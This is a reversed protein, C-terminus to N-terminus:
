LTVATESLANLPLLFSVVTVIPLLTVFIPLSANEPQLFRFFIVTVAPFSFVILIMANLPMLLFAVMVTFPVFFAFIAKFFCNFFFDMPYTFVHFTFYYSSSNKFGQRNYISVYSDIAPLKKNCKDQCFLLFSYLVTFNM